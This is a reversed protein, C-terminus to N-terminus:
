VAETSDTRSFTNCVNLDLDWSFFHNDLGRYQKDISLVSKRIKNSQDDIPNHIIKRTFAVYDTFSLQTEEATSIKNGYTFCPKAIRLIGFRGGVGLGTMILPVSALEEKYEILEFLQKVTMYHKHDQEISDLWISNPKKKKLIGEIVNFISKSWPASVEFSVLKADNDNLLSILQKTMKVIAFAQKSLSTPVSVIECSDIVLDDENLHGHEKKVLSYAGVSASIELGDQGKLNGIGIANLGEQVFDSPAEISLMLVSSVNEDTHFSLVGAFMGLCGQSVVKIGAGKVKNLFSILPQNISDFAFIALEISSTIYISDPATGFENIHQDLAKSFFRYISDSEVQNSASVNHICVVRNM